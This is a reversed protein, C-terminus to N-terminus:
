VTRRISEAPPEPGFLDPRAQVVPDSADWPDGARLVVEATAVTAQAWVIRPMISRAAM